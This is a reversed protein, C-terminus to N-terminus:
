VTSGTAKALDFGMKIGQLMLAELRILMDLESEAALGLGATICASKIAMLDLEPKKESASSDSLGAYQNCVANATTEFSGVTCRYSTMRYPPTQKKPECHNCSACTKRQQAALYGQRRKVGAAVIAAVQYSSM